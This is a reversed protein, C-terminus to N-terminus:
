KRIPQTKGLRALPAALVSFAVGLTITIGFARIAMTDSLSLLGFALLTTAASTVIAVITGTDTSRAERFFVSYDVGVGLVLLLAFISFISVPEGVIGLVGMSLSAALIPASLVSLGGRFGYRCVLVLLVVFYSVITLLISQHRYQHFLTSIDGAPDFFHISQGADALARVRPMDLIGKLGVIGAVKGHREGIWLHRYPVSASAALWDNLTEPKSAGSEEFAERYNQVATEPLGVTDAIRILSGDEGALLKGIFARNEAQRSISPIFDSVALYGELANDARLERLREVLIEEKQLYNEADLAEILFFQSSQNRGILNRVKLEEALVSESPTQLLRIDDNANINLIGLVSILGVIACAIVAKSVSVTRWLAIYSLSVKLLWTVHPEKLGVTMRPYWVVVCIFACVLGISSFTAMEQMGHFPAIIIGLFGIVSTTMGLSIGPAVHRLAEKPNWDSGTDVRTCFYHLSYDVSIGILSSGFVLTLLHVQDFILLCGAGGGLCGVAISALSLLLPRLSRFVLRFILIITILSGLGVSSMEQFGRATGEAAHPLVGATLVENDPNESVFAARYAELAGMVDNQVDLSFPSGGIMGSVFVYTIGNKEISLFGEQSILRDSIGSGRESFFRTLFLFPDAELMSSQLLTGPSFYGKLVASNFAELDGDALLERDSHSIITFRHKRYYGMVENATSSPFEVQLKDFRGIKSMADYLGVAGVRATEFDRAGVLWVVRREFQKRTAAVTEAVSVSMESKPLLSLINTNIVNGATFQGGVYLVLIVVTVLWGIPLLRSRSSILNM